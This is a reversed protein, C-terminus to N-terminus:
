VVARRTRRAVRGSGPTGRGDEESRGAGGASIGRAAPRRRAGAARGPRGNPGAAGTKGGAAGAGRCFLDVVVQYGRVAAPEDELDRARTRLMGLLFNALVEPPLDRRIVGEAVGTRIVDAVAAALKKRHRVWREYLSGGVVALRFDEAQMMRFLQRRRQFFTGIQECTELLQRRFPAGGPVNERVVDCLADFGWTATQFFLDDKDRFYRYITGKGICAAQAVDDTTVEYFRKTTFLGEAAQMIETRRDRRAM